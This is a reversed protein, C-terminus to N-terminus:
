LNKHFLFYGTRVHNYSVSINVSENLLSEVGTRKLMMNPVIDMIQAQQRLVIEGMAALLELCWPQVMTVNQEQTLSCILLM